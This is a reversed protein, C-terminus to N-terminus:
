FRAGVQLGPTFSAWLKSDGNGSDVGPILLVNVNAGVYLVGVTVFATVGPELYLKTTSDSLSTSALGGSISSSITAEGIGLQPRVTLISLHFGYGGEVGLMLAHTSVSGGGLDE